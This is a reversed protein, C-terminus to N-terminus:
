RGGSKLAQLLKTGDPTGWGTAANWGPGACFGSLERSGNHGSLVPRLIGSPGLTEYLLPNFFGLNHGLGQNLVAVLGAWASVAVDTGGIQAFHGQIYLAYGSEPDANIAVDPVGRGPRGSLSHPVHINAQWGPQDFLESVGGGSAGQYASWKNWVTENTGSAGGSVIQTGGVSLVWPSSAPFDVQLRYDTAQDRAGHDGSAVLVTINHRAATEFASNMQQFISADSMSSMEPSGWAILLVSPSNIKDHIAANVVDLFGAPDQKTFYVVYKAGPAFAGAVELNAEVEGEAFKDSLPLQSDPKNGQGDVSVWSVRPKPLGISKFYMDLDQDQYAGGLEIVGITQGTGDLGRPFNYYGKLEAPSQIKSQPAVQKQGVTTQQANSPLIRMASFRRVEAERAAQVTTPTSLSSNNADFQNWLAVQDNNNPPLGLMGIQAKDYVAECWGDALRLQDATLGEAGTFDAYKIEAGDLKARAMAAHKLNANALSAGRLDADIMASGELNAGLLDAGKLDASTLFSNALFSARMDAYRLNAASLQIGKVNENSTADDPKWAAPKTSLEAARLDAFPPLGYRAMVKPVWSRAGTESPWYNDRITGSRVGWIAGLALTILAATVGFGTGIPTVWRKSAFHTSWSFPTRQAGSLTEGAVRYLSIGSSLVVGCGVSHFVTGWLEQRSLYRNWFYLLTLPVLWWTLFISIWIQLKVLFSTKNKFRKNHALVLDSLLWPDTKRHLPTGDPFISPLRGIEEWLKQLYFHLYFYAAILVLPGIFFFGVIPVSTQIIPLSSTARNTILNVDTTAAVTLGCYLCAALTAIFVKQANSSIDKVIKLDDFQRTLWDPLAAGTLDAGAFKAGALKCSALNARRLNAYSLDALVLDANGLDTDALAAGTLNPELDPHHYRWLNWAIPSQRLLELLQDQSEMATLILEGITEFLGEDPRSKGATIGRLGGRRFRFKYIHNKQRFPIV